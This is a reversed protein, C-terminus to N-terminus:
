SASAKVAASRITTTTYGSKKGTVRVSLAHEADARKVKYTRSTAGKIAKGDRYWRYSLTVKGPAWASSAATLKKGVAATGTITATGPILTGKKVRATKSSTKAVSTYGSKSAAVRVSFRDNRDSAKLTYTPKTAGKIKKGNRYWQYKLNATPTWDVTATLKKGVAKTGTIKPTSSAAFKAKAPTVQASYMTGDDYGEMSATVRVRLKHGVDSARVRYTDSTAGSINKKDRQWQYKVTVADGFTEQKASLVTDTALRGSYRITPKVVGVAGGTTVVVATVQVTTDEYGRHRGTVEVWVAGQENGTTRYSSSTAGPIPTGDNRIWQYTFQEPQPNWSGSQVTLTTGPKVATRGTSPPTSVTIPRDEVVANLTISVSDGASFYLSHSGGRACLLVGGAYSCPSDPNTAPTLYSGDPGRVEVNLPSNPFIKSTVAYQSRASLRGRWDKLPSFDHVRNSSLSLDTGDPLSALASIDSIRNWALDLNTLRALGALPTVDDIQNDNLYLTELNALDALPTLDSVQNQILNLSTLGSLGRLPRLDDINNSSLWLSKLATLERLPTLDSVDNDYLDLHTLRTLSTLAGLDALASRRVSLSILGTHHELGSLSTLAPMELSLARLDPPLGIQALSTLEAHTFTLSIVTELQSLVGFDALPRDGGIHLSLLAPLDAIPTLDAAPVNRLDLATLRDLSMLPELSSIPNGRLHLSRLSTLASLPTLDTITNSDLNLSWLNVLHEAGTLDEIAQNQNCTLTSRDLSALNDATLPGGDLAKSLCTRFAPDPIDVEDEAAAASSIPTLAMPLGILGAILGRRLRTATPHIPM